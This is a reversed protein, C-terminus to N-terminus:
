IMLVFFVLQIVPLQVASNSPSESTDLFLSLLDRDRIITLGLHKPFILGDSLPQVQLKRLDRGLLVEM